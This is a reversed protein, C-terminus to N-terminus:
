AVALEMPPNALERIATDIATEESSNANACVVSMPIGHSTNKPIPINYASRRHRDFEVAAAARM